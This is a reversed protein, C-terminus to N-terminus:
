PRARRSAHHGDRLQNNVILFIVPLKWLQALNLSEHFAGINTTADGM